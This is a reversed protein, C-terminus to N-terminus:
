DEGAENFSIFGAGPTNAAREAEREQQYAVLARGKSRSVLRNGRHQGHRAFGSLGKDKEQEDREFQERILDGISYPRVSTVRPSAPYLAKRKALREQTSNGEQAVGRWAEIADVAEEDLPEQSAEECLDGTLDALEELARTRKALKLLTTFVGMTYDGSQQAHHLITLETGGEPMKYQPHEPFLEEAHSNFCQGLTRM